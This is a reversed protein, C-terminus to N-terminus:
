KLYPVAFFLVVWFLVFFFHVGLLMYYVNVNRMLLKVGRQYPPVFLGQDLPNARDHARRIYEDLRAFNWRSILLSAATLFLAMGVIFESKWGVDSQLWLLMLAFEGALFASFASWTITDQHQIMGVLVDLGLQSQAETSPRSEPKM